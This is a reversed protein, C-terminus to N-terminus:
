VFCQNRVPMMTALEPDFRVLIVFDRHGAKEAALAVIELSIRRHPVLELRLEFLTM